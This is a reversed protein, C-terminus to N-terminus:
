VFPLRAKNVQDRLLENMKQQSEGQDRIFLIVAELSALRNKGKVMTLYQHTEDTLRMTKMNLNRKAETIAVSCVSYICNCM